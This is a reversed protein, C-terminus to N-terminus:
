NLEDTRLREDPHLSGEDLADEATLPRSIVYSENLWNSLDALKCSPSCFPRFPANNPVNEITKSCM